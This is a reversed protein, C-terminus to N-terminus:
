VWIYVSQLKSDGYSFNWFVKSFKENRNQHYCIKFQIKRYLVLNHSNPYLSIMNTCTYTPAALNKIFHTGPDSSSLSTEKNMDHM